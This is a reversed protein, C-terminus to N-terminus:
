LLFTVDVFGGSSGVELWFARSRMLKVGDDQGSRVVGRLSVWIPWARIATSVKLRASKAAYCKILNYSLQCGKAEREWPSKEDNFKMIVTAGNFRMSGIVKWMERVARPPTRQWEEAPYICFCDFLFKRNDPSFSYFFHRHSNSGTTYRTRYVILNFIWLIANCTWGQHKRDSQVLANPKDIKSYLNSLSLVPWKFKM